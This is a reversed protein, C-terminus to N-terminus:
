QIYQLYYFLVYLMFQLFTKQLIFIANERDVYNEKCLINQLTKTSFDKNLSSNRVKVKLYASIM